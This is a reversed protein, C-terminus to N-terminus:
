KKLPIYKEEGNRSYNKTNMFKEISDSWLPNNYIRIIGAPTLTGKKDLIDYIIDKLTKERIESPNYKLIEDLRKGFEEEPFNASYKKIDEIYKTLDKIKTESPHRKSRIWNRAAERNKEKMGPREVYEKMYKQRYKIEEEGEIKCISKNKIKDKEIKPENKRHGRMYGRMYNNWCLKENEKMKKDRESIEEGM